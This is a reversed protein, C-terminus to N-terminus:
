WLFAMAWQGVQWVPNGNGYNLTGIPLTGDTAQDNGSLAFGNEFNRDRIAEVYQEQPKSSSDSSSNGSASQSNTPSSDVSSSNNGVSACASLTLVGALMMALIKKDKM